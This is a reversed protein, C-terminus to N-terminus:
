KRYQLQYHKGVNGKDLWELYALAEDRLLSRAGQYSVYCIRVYRGGRYASSNYWRSCGQDNETNLKPDNEIRKFHENIRNAIQELTLKDDM